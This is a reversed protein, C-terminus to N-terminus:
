SVTPNGGPAPRRLLWIAEYRQRIKEAAQLVPQGVTANAFGKVQGLRWRTEGLRIIEMTALRKGAQSMSFVRVDGDMCRQDYAAVCHRMAQGERWLSAGDMLPVIHFGDVECAPVLSDWRLGTAQRTKLVEDHWAQEARCIAPWALAGKSAQLRGATAQAWDEALTCEELFAPFDGLRRRRWAERVAADLFRVPLSPTRASWCWLRFLPLPPLRDLHRVLFLGAGSESFVAERVYAAPMAALRRWGAAGFLSHGSPSCSLHTLWHKVSRMGDRGLTVEEGGRRHAFAYALLAPALNPAEREAARFAERQRPLINHMACDWHPAQRLWRRIDTDLTTRLFRALARAVQTEALRIGAADLFYETTNELAFRDEFVDNRIIIDLADVLSIGQEAGLRDNITDYLLGQAMMRTALQPLDPVMVPRSPRWLSRADSLQRTDECYALTYYGGLFDLRTIGEERRMRVVPRRGNRVDQALAEAYRMFLALFYSKAPLKVM